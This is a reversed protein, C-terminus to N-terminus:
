RYQDEYRQVEKIVKPKKSKKILILIILTGISFWIWHKIVLKVVFITTKISVFFLIFLGVGIMVALLYWNLYSEKKKEKNYEGIIM